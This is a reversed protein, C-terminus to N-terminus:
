FLRNLNNMILNYNETLLNMRENISNLRGLYTKSSEKNDSKENDSGQEFNGINRLKEIIGININYFKDISNNIKNIVADFETSKLIKESEM